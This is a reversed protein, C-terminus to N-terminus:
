IIYMYKVSYWGVSFTATSSAVTVNLPLTPKQHYVGFLHSMKFLVICTKHQCHICMHFPLKNLFVKSHQKLYWVWGYFLEAALLMEVEVEVEVVVM